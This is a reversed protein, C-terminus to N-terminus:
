PREKLALAEVVIAPPLVASGIGHARPIRVAVLVLGDDEGVSVTSGAPLGARLREWALAADGGRAHERAVAGAVSVAATRHSGARLVGLLLALVLLLTVLSVALEATVM